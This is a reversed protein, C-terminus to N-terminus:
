AEVVMLTVALGVVVVDPWGTVRVAVTLVELIPKAGDPATCNRFEPWGILPVTAYVYALAGVLAVFGNAENVAVRVVEKVDV